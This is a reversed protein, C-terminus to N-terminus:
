LFIKLKGFLSFIMIKAGDSKMYKQRRKMERNNKKIDLVTNKSSKLSSRFANMNM